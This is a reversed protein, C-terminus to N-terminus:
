EQELDHDLCDFDEENKHLPGDVLSEGRAERFQTLCYKYDKLLVDIVPHWDCILLRKMRELMAIRGMLESETLGIDIIISM